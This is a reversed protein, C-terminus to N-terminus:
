VPLMFKIRVEFNSLTYRRREHAVIISAGKGNRYGSKITNTHPISERLLFIDLESVYVVASSYYSFDSKPVWIVTAASTDTIHVLIFLVKTVTIFHCWHQHCLM